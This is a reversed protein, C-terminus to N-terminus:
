RFNAKLIKPLGQSGVLMELNTYAINQFPLFKMYHDPRNVQPMPHFLHMRTALTQASEM